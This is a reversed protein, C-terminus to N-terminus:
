WHGMIVLRSKYQCQLRNQKPANPVLSPPAIAALMQLLSPDTAADRHMKQKIILSFIHLTCLTECNTCDKM